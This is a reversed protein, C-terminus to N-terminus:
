IILFYKKNRNPNHNNINNCIDDMTILYEIFIKPNDYHKKGAVKFTKFLLQYKSEYPDKVCIFKILTSFNVQLFLLFILKHQARKWLSVFTKNIQKECKDCQHLGIIKSNKLVLSM